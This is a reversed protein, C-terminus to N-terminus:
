RKAVTFVKNMIKWQGDHKLLVFYDTFVAQPYELTIKATGANGNIEVFDITRKRQAEDVAPKGSFRTRDEDLTWNAFTGDLSVGQIRAQPHFAGVLHEPNGSAHASLYAELPKRAAAEDSQASLGVACLLLLIAVNGTRM